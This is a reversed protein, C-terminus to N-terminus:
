VYVHVSSSSARARVYVCYARLFSFDASLFSIFLNMHAETQRNNNTNISAAAHVVYMSYTTHM